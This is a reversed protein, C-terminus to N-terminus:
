SSRCAADTGRSRSPPIRRRRGCRRGERRRERGVAAPAEVERLRHHTAREAVDVVRVPDGVEDGLAADRLRVLRRLGREAAEPTRLAHEHDLVDEAPDRREEPMSAASAAPACSRRARGSWATRGARAGHRAGARSRPPAATRRAVEVRPTGPDGREVGLVLVHLASERDRRHLEADREGEGGEVLGTREHVDVLVPRHQDVVAAGLHALAQVRLHQLDRGGREAHRQLRHAQRRGARVLHRVGGRGRRRRAGVEVAARHLVGALLDAVPHGRDGAAHEADVCRSTRNEPPRTEPRPRM